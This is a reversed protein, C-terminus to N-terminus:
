FKKQWLYVSFIAGCGLTVWLLANWRAVISGATETPEWRIRGQTPQILARDYNIVGAATVAPVQDRDSSWLSAVHSESQLDTLRSMWPIFIPLVPLETEPMTLPGMVARLTGGHARKEGVIVRGSERLLAATGNEFACTLEPTASQQRFAQVSAFLTLLQPLMRSLFDKFEDSCAMAPSATAVTSHAM